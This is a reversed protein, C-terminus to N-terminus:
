PLPTGVHSDTRRPVRGSPFVRASRRPRTAGIASSAVQRSGGQSPCWVRSRRSIGRPISSQDETRVGNVSTGHQSRLDRIHLTDAQRYLEAHERSVGRDRDL